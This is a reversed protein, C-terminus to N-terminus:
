AATRALRHAERRIASLLLRRILGSFPRILWWYRRMARYASGDTAWVRTQTTLRTRGPAEGSVVFGFTAKAYGPEAFGAFREATDVDSRNADRGVAWWRGVLGYVVEHPDRALLPMTAPSPLDRQGGRHRVRVLLGRVRMLMQAIPLDTLEVSDIARWVVPPAADIDVHHQESWHPAPLLQDALPTNM